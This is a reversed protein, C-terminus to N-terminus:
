KALWNVDFSLGAGSWFAVGQLSSGMMLELRTM